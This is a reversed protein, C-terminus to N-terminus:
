VCVYMSVLNVVVNRITESFVIKSSVGQNRQSSKKKEYCVMDGIM